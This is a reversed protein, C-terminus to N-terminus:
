ARSGTVRRLFDELAGLETFSRTLSWRSVVYLPRGDDGDIATLVGGWLAATAKATALRKADQPALLQAAVTM